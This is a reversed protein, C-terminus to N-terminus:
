NSVPPSFLGNGQPCADYDLLNLFYINVFYRVLIDVRALANVTFSSYFHLLTGCGM